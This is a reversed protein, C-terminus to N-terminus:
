VLKAALAKAKAQVGAPLRPQPERAILGTFLTGVVGAGVPRPLGERVILNRDAPFARQGLIEVVDGRKGGMGIHVRQRVGVPIPQAEVVGILGGDGRTHVM